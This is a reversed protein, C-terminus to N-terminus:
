IGVRRNIDYMALPIRGRPSSHVWVEDVVEISLSSNKGSNKPPVKPPVL